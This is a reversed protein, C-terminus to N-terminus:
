ALEVVRIEPNNFVREAIVMLAEGPVESNFHEQSAWDALQWASTYLSSWARFEALMEQELLVGITKEV